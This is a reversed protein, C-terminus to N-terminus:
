KPRQLKKLPCELLPRKLPPCHLQIEEEEQDILLLLQILALQLQIMREQELQQLLQAEVKGTQEATPAPTPSISCSCPLSALQLIICQLLSQHLKEEELEHILLSARSPETDDHFVVM